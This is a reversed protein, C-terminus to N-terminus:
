AKYLKKVNKTTTLKFEFIPVNHETEFTATLYKYGFQNSLKELILLAPTLSMQFIVGHYEAHLRILMDIM